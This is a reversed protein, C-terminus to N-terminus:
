PIQYNGCIGLSSKETCECVVLNQFIFEQWHILEIRAKISFKTYGKGDAKVLRM